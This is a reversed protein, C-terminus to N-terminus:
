TLPAQSQTERGLFLEGIDDRELLEAAPGSASVRGAVLVYGWDAITLAESARQEVLVVAAGSNALVRVQAELVSRAVLPALNSTPEDFIIVNPRLMLVRAIALMKREGGSLKSASRTRMEGLAPFAGLVEDVRPAVDKRALLYGGMELNEIVTLTGFVDNVQPVFAIGARALQDGRRGTVDKGDLRVSGELVEARGTIAKLLTSKGAGNPGIITAVEGGGVSVDVGHVIPAGGYGAVLQEVELVQAPREGSSTPM